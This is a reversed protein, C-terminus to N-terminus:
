PRAEFVLHIPTEAARRFHATPDHRTPTWVNADEIQKVDFGIADPWFAPLEDFIGAHIAQMTQQGAESLHYGEVTREVFHDVLKGLHYNFQGSDRVGVREKVESYAATEAEWLTRLIAVRIEHGLASFAEEPAVGTATQGEGPESM